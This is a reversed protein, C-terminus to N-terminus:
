LPGSGQWWEKVAEVFVRTLAQVIGAIIPPAWWPGRPREPTSSM